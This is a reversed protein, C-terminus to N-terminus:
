NRRFYYNTTLPNDGQQLQAAGSHGALWKDYKINSYEMKLPLVDM